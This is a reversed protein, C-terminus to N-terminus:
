ADSEARPYGRPASRRDYGPTELGPRGPRVPRTRQPACIGRQARFSMTPPSAGMPWNDIARGMLAAPELGVGASRKDGRESVPPLPTLPGNRAVREGNGM